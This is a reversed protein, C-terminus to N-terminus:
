RVRLGRMIDKISRRRLVGWCGLLAATAAISLLLDDGRLDRILLVAVLPLLLGGAVQVSEFAWSMGGRRWAISYPIVAIVLTGVMFGLPVAYEWGAVTVVIWITVGVTAGAASSVASVAMGRNSGATVASVAPVAITSVAVAPLLFLIIEQAQQFSGGWVLEIIGSSLLMMPIYAGVMLTTMLSTSIRLRDAVVTEAKAGHAAALAPFMVASVASAALGLPTTLTMAAAYQGVFALSQAIGAFLVAAQAFGTSTLSGAISLAIFRRIERALEPEVAKVSRRPWSTAVFLLNLAALPALVWVERMGAGLLGVLLVSSLGAIVLSWQALRGGEGGGFHLGEVFARGSVAVITVGIMVAAAPSVAMILTAIGGAATAVVLSILM